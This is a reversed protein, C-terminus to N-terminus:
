RPWTIVGLVLPHCSRWADWPQHKGLGLMCLACARSTHCFTSLVGCSALRPEFAPTDSGDGSDLLLPEHVGGKRCSGPLEMESQRPRGRGRFDGLRVDLRMPRCERVRVSHVQM